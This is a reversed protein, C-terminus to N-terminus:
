EQIRVSTQTEQAKDDLERLHTEYVQGAAPVAAWCRCACACRAFPTLLSCRVSSRVCHLQGRGRAPQHPLPLRGGLRGANTHGVHTLSHVTCLACCARMAGDDYWPCASPCSGCCRRPALCSRSTRQARNLSACVLCHTFCACMCREPLATCLLTGFLGHDYRHTRCPQVGAHQAREQLFRCHM